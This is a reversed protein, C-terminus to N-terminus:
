SALVGPDLQRPRRRARGAAREPEAAAARPALHHRGLCSRSRTSGSPWRSRTSRSGTSPTSAARAAPGGQGAARVAAVRVPVHRLRRGAVALQGHHPPRRPVLNPVSAEKAPSWLLTCVELVLSALVLAVRPRRVPAAPWPPRGSRPRLRGDGEQPGVPRRARRRGPRPLLRPRHPGGDGPRRRDRAVRRRGPHRGGRHRPVRDLRRDVVRGAGGCGSSSPSAFLRTRWDRRSPREDISSPARQRESSAGARRDPEM